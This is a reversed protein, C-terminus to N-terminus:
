LGKEFIKPKPLYLAECVKDQIYGNFRKFDNEIRNYSLKNVGILKAVDEQSLGMERRIHVLISKIRKAEAKEEDTNARPAPKRM